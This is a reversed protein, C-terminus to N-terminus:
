KGTRIGDLEKQIYAISKSITDMEKLVPKYIGIREKYDESDICIIDNAASLLLGLRKEGAAGFDVVVMSGDNSKVVGAGFKKHHLPVGVGYAKLLYAKAEILLQEKENWRELKELLKREKEKRELIGTKEKSTPRAFTIGEYLNYPDCCYIIEFALIHKNEDPHMEKANLGYEEYRSAAIELLKENELIEEVLQDCMRYYVHLKVTDGSGWDDYFEICDAFKQANMAKFAYNQEPEYLFLYCSVSHFDSKYMFSDPFYKEKLAHAAQLFSTIKNERVRLDGKDDAFLDAFMKQVVAPEIEAMAVLGGLPQVSSDIFNSTMKKIEKLKGAFEDIPAVIADDMMPRFKYAIEWKYYEEHKSDNLLDFKDMYNQFIRNLRKENM